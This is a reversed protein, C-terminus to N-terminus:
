TEPPLTITPPEALQPRNAGQPTVEKQPSSSFLDPGARLSQATIDRKQQEIIREVFAEKLPREIAFLATQTSPPIAEIADAYANLFDRVRKSSRGMEAFQELLREQFPTLEREFMAAQGLYDRLPIDQNRLRDLVDVAKAVDETISLRADRLGSQILGEVKGMKVLSGFMGHEIM